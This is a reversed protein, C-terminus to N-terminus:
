KITSESSEKSQDINGLLSEIAKKFKSEDLSKHLGELVNEQKSADFMFEKATATKENITYKNSLGDIAQTTQKGRSYLNGVTETFEVFGPIPILPINKFGELKLVENSISDLNEGKLWEGLEKLFNMKFCM